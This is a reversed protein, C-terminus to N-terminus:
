ERVIKELAKDNRYCLFNIIECLENYIDLSISQILELSRKLQNHLFIKREQIELWLRNNGDLLDVIKKPTQLVEKLLGIEHAIFFIINGTDLQKILCRKLSILDDVDDELQHVMGLNIGFNYFIQKNLPSLRNYTGLDCTLGLLSGTKLRITEYYFSTGEHWHEQAKVDRAQGKAMDASILLLDKLALYYYKDCSAQNFLTIEGAAKLLFATNIASAIGSKCWLAQRGCRQESCDEVDDIILSANHYFEIACALPLARKIREGVGKAILLFLNGRLRKSHASTTQNSHADIQLHYYADSLLPHDPFLQNLIKLLETNILNRYKSIIEPTSTQM